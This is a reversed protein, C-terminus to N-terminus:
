TRELAIEHEEQSREELSRNKAVGMARQEMKERAERKHRRRTEPALNLLSMTDRLVQEKVVRDLESETAFSPAHNVELLWPQLKHDLIVDFGLIEFCMSNEVDDPQCSHYFHSLSPQVAILTKIILDEIEGMMADVDHGKERLHEFVAEM